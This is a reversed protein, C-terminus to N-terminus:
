EILLLSENTKHLQVLDETKLADLGSASIRMIGVGVFNQKM